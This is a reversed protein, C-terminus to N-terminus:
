FDTIPFDNYEHLFKERTLPLAEAIAGFNSLDRAKHYLSKIERCFILKLMYKDSSELYVLDNLQLNNLLVGLCHYIMEKEQKFIDENFM